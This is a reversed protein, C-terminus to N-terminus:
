TKELSEGLGAKTHQNKQWKENSQNLDEVVETAAKIMM